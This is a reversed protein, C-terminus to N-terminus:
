VHSLYGQHKKELSEVFMQSVDDNPSEKTFIVPDKKKKKKKKKLKVVYKGLTARNLWLQELVPGQLKVFVNFYKFIYMCLNNANFSM